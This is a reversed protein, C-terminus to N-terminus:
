CRKSLLSLFAALTQPQVFCSIATVFSNELNCVCKEEANYALASPFEDVYLGMFQCRAVDLSSYALTDVLLSVVFAKHKLASRFPPHTDVDPLVGTSVAKVLVDPNASNKTLCDALCAETRVHAFDDISGPCTEKRLMHIM